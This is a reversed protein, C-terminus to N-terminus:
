GGNIQRGDDAQDFQVPEAGNKASWAIIIRGRECRKTM